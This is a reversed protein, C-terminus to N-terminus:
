AKSVLMLIGHTKIFQKHHLDTASHTYHHLWEHWLHGDNARDSYEKKVSRYLDSQAQQLALTM